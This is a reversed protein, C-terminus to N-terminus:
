AIAVCQGSQDFSITLVGDSVAKFLDKLSVADFFKSEDVNLLKYASEDFFVNGASGNALLYHLKVYNKGVKSSFKEVKTIIGNM